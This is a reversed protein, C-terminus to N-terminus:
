KCGMLARSVIRFRECFSHIRRPIIKTYILQETDPQLTLFHNSETRSESIFLMALSRLNSAIFKVGLRRLRHLESRLDMHFADVWDIRKFGRGPLAKFESRKTGRQTGRTFSATTGRMKITGEACIISAKDRWLRMLKMISAQRSGKLLAPFHDFTKSPVNKFGDKVHEDIM